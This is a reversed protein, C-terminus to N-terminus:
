CCPRTSATLQLFLLLRLDESKRRKQDKLASAGLFIENERRKRRSVRSRELFRSEREERIERVTKNVSELSVHEGLDFVWVGQTKRLGALVRAPRLVTRDEARPNGVWQDTEALLEPHDKDLWVPKKSDLFRLLRQKRTENRM